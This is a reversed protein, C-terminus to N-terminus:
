RAVCRIPHRRNDVALRRLQGSDRRRMRPPRRPVLARVPRLEGFMKLKQEYHLAAERMAQERSSAIHFQYGLALREGLERKISRRHM